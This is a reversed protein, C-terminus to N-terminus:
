HNSQCCFFSGNDVGDQPRAPVSTSVAFWTNGQIATKLKLAPRSSIGSVAAAAVVMPEPESPPLINTKKELVPTAANKPSKRKRPIPGLGGKGTASSGKSSKIGEVTETQLSGKHFVLEWGQSCDCGEQCQIGFIRNRRHIEWMALLRELLKTSTEDPREMALLPVFMSAFNGMIGISYEGPRLKHPNAWSSKKKELHDSVVTATLAPLDKVCSCEESCETGFHKKHQSWMYSMASSKHISAGISFEEEVIGGYKNFFHKYGVQENQLSPDSVQSSNHTLSSAPSEPQQVLCASTAAM